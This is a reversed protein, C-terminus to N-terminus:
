HSELLYLWWLAWNHLSIRVPFLSHPAPVEELDEEGLAQPPVGPRFGRPGLFLPLPQVMMMRAGPQFGLFTSITGNPPEDGTGAAGGNSGDCVPAKQIRKM